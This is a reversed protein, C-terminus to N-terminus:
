EFSYDKIDYIEMSDSTSELLRAGVLKGGAYYRYATYYVPQQTGRIEVLWIECQYTNGKIVSAFRSDLKTSYVDANDTAFFLVDLYSLQLDAVDHWQFFSKSKVSGNEDLLQEKKTLMRKAFGTRKTSEGSDPSITVNYESVSPALSYDANMTYEVAHYSIQKGDFQQAIQEAYSTDSDNSETTLEGERYDFNLHRLTREYFSLKGALLLYVGLLAAIIMLIILLKIKRSQKAEAGVADALPEYEETVPPFNPKILKPVDEEATQETLNNQEENM